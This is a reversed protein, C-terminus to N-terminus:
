RKQGKVRPQPHVVVNEVSELALRNDPKEATGFHKFLGTVTAEVVPNKKVDTVLKRYGKSKLLRAFHADDPMFFKLEGACSDDTLGAPLDQVGTEVLARVQVVREDFAEPHRAIECVTSKAVDGSQGQGYSFM